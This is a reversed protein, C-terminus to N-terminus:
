KEAIAKLNALGIEFDDGVMKDMNFLVQMVKSIFPAPGRMAWTVQTSDGQPQLTFDVINNAAFPKVFVLKLTVRSPPSSDTIEMSGQGIEKNGDWAYMAGKGGPAGGLTRKMAPDKKEYPSWASWARFDNILPFIKGPAAKISTSREVRFTDPKAAALALLAALLVVVVIAIAKIM